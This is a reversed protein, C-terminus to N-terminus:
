PGQAGLPEPGARAVTRPSNGSDFFHSVEQVSGYSFVWWSGRFGAMADLARGALLPGCGGTLGVWAYFIATYQTKREAPVVSVYLYRYM